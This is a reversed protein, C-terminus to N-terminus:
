LNYTPLTTKQGNISLSLVGKEYALVYISSTGVPVNGVKHPIQDGGARTQEIGITM